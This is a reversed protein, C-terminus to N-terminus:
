SAARGVLCPAAWNACNATRAARSSGKGAGRPPGERCAEAVHFFWRFLSRCPGDAGLSQPYQVAALSLTSACPYSRVRSKRRQPYGTTHRSFLRNALRKVVAARGAGIALTERFNPSWSAGKFETSCFALALVQCKFRQRSSPPREKEALYGARQRSRRSAPAPPSNLRRGRTRTPM